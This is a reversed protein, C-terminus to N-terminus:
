KRGRRMGRTTWWIGLLGLLIASDLVLHGTFGLWRGGSGFCGCSLDIGRMRAVISATIFIATLGTLIVVAGTRLFGVILGLGCLIELWPLYFALRVGLPWSLIHYNSIENAFLIPDWVKIAGTCIFLGGLLIALAVSIPSRRAAGARNAAM